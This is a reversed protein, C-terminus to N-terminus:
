IWPEFHILKGGEGERGERVERRKEERGKRRHKDVKFRPNTILVYGGHHSVAM